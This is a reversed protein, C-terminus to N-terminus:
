AKAKFDPCSMVIGGRLKQQKYFNCQTENGCKKCIDPLLFDYTRESDDVDAQEGHDSIIEVEDGLCDVDAVSVWIDGNYFIVECDSPYEKLKEILQAVTM